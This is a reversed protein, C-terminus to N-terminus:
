ACTYKRSRGRRNRRSVLWHEEGYRLGWLFPRSPSFTLSSFYSITQCANRDNSQAQQGDATSEQHPPLELGGAGSM